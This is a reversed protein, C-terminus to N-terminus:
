HTLAYALINANLAHANLIENGGCCCCGPGANATDNLGLASYVLVLRGDLDLGELKAPAPKKAELEDIDRITHFVPHTMALPRLDGHPFAGRLAARFARDWEPDTCGASALVFGGRELYTRLRVQEAASLAFSGEGTMVAFPYLFLEDSDLRIRRLREEIRVGMDTAAQRLFRDAFCVSSKRGGYTLNACRIVSEPAPAVPRSVPQSALPPSVGAGAILLGLLPVAITHRRCIM